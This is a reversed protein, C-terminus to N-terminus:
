VGGPPPFLCYIYKHPSECLYWADDKQQGDHRVRHPEVLRGDHLIYGGSSTRKPAGPYRKCDQGSCCESPFWDHAEATGVLLLFMVIVCGTGVIAIARDFDRM